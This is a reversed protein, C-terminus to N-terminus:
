PQLGNLGGDHETEWRQLSYLQKLTTAPYQEGWFDVMEEIGAACPSWDSSTIKGTNDILVSANFEGRPGPACVGHYMAALVWDSQNLRRLSVDNRWEVPVVGSMDYSEFKSVWEQIFRERERRLPQILLYDTAFHLGVVATAIFFLVRFLKPKMIKRGFTQPM